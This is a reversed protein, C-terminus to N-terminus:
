RRTPLTGGAGLVGVRAVEIERSSVFLNQLTQHKSM